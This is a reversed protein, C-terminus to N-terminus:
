KSATYSLAVVCHAVINYENNGVYREDMYLTSIGKGGFGDRASM